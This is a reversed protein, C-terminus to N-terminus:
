AVSDEEQCMTKMKTHFPRNINSEAYDPTRIAQYFIPIYMIFVYAIEM